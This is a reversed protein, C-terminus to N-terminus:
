VLIDDLVIMLRRSPAFIASGTVGLAGVTFTTGEDGSLRLTSYAAGGPQVKTFIWTRSSPPAHITNSLLAM